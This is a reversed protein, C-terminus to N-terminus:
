YELSLHPVKLHLEMTERNLNFNIHKGSTVETFSAKTTGATMVRDGADGDLLFAGRLCSMQMEACHLDKLAPITGDDSLLGCVSIFVVHYKKALLSAAQYARLYQEAHRKEGPYSGLPLLEEFDGLVVVDYRSDSDLERDSQMDADLFGMLEDLTPWAGTLCRCCPFNPVRSVLLARYGIQECLWAAFIDNEECNRGAIAYVGGPMLGCFTGDFASINTPIMGVV